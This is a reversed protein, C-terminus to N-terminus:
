NGSEKIAELSKLIQRVKLIRRQALAELIEKLEVETIIFSM